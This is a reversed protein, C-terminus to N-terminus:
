RRRGDASRLSVSSLDANEAEGGPRGDAGYSVIEYPHGDPGPVILYYSSGWPDTIQDRSLYYSDTPAAHGDSIAALGLEVNPWADHEIRYAELKQQIIGIGTKALERKGRSFAGSFGVALTGALLGLIVVVALVEVLTMAHPAGRRTAAAAREVGPRSGGLVRDVSAM